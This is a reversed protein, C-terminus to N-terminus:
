NLLPQFIQRPLLALYQPHGPPARWPNFPQNNVREHLWMCAFFVRARTSACVFMCVYINFGQYNVVSPYIARKRLFHGRKHKNLM